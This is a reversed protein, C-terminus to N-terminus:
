CLRILTQSPRSVADDANAAANNTLYLIMGREFARQEADTAMAMIRAMEQPNQMADALIGMTRESAGAGTRRLVANLIMLPRSLANPSQESFMENVLDTGRRGGARALRQVDADRALGRGIKTLEQMEDPTMLDALGGGRKFGTARSVSENMERMAQAYAAARQPAEAGADNLAPILRDQIYRAANMRDIPKSLDAFLRQAEGYEPAAKAIQRDLSKKIVSLERAIANNVRAGDPSRADMLNRINRSASILNPVSETMVQGPVELNQIAGRIVERAQADQPRLAQLRAIATFEDIDFNKAQNLIQRAQILERPAAGQYDSIAGRTINWSDRARNQAPYAEFMTNRVRDLVGFAEENKTRNRIRDILNITRKPDALEKSREAAQYLPQTASRRATEATAM